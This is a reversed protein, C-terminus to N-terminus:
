PTADYAARVPQGIVPLTIDFEAQEGATGGIPTAMAVVTATVSPWTDEAHPVLTVDVETGHNDTLYKCIGTSGYDQVGVLQLTWIPAGVSQIAGVPDLVPYTSIETEPNFLATKVKADYETGDVELIANRIVGYQGVAM